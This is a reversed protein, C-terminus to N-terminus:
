GGTKLWRGTAQRTYRQGKGPGLGQGFVHHCETHMVAWPGRRTMGDIFEDEIAGQCIDCRVPAEGAWYREPQRSIRPEM